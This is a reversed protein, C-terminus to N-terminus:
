KGGPGGPGGCASMAHQFAPSAPDTGPGIKFEYGNINLMAAGGRAPLRNTGAFVPDPFGTIGHARMCESLKLLTAEESASPTSSPGGGPLLHKCAHQASQFVPSAPDLGGGIRISLGGGSGPDPFRTVGHARMCVSFALFDARVASRKNAANSSGGCAALCSATAAALLASITL